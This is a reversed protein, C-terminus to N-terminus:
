PATVLERWADVAEARRRPDALLGDVATPPVSGDSVLRRLVTELQSDRDVTSEGSDAGRLAVIVPHDVSAPAAMRDLVQQYAQEAQACPLDLGNHADADPCNPATTAPLDSTRRRRGLPLDIYAHWWSVYEPRSPTGVNVLRGGTFIGRVIALDRRISPLAAEPNTGLRRARRLALRQELQEDGDLPAESGAEDALDALLLRQEDTALLQARASTVLRDTRVQAGVEARRLRTYDHQRSRLHQRAAGEPHNLRTGARVLYAHATMFTELLMPQCPCDGGIFFRPLGPRMWGPEAEASHCSRCGDLPRGAAVTQRLRGGEVLSVGAIVVRADCSRAVDWRARHIRQRQAATEWLVALAVGVRQCDCLSRGGFDEGSAEPRGGTVAM